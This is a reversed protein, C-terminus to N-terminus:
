FPIGSDDATADQLEQVSTNSTGAYTAALLGSYVSMALRTFSKCHLKSMEEKTFQEGTSHYFRYWEPPLFEFVVNPKNKEVLSIWYINAENKGFYLTVDASRNSTETNSDKSYKIFEIKHKPGGDEETIASLLSIFTAFVMPEMNATIIGDYKNTFNGPLFVTIRPQSGLLSWVLRAPSQQGPVNAWFKIKNLEIFGNKLTNNEFAM